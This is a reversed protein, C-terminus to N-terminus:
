KLRTYLLTKYLKEQPVYGQGELHKDIESSKGDEFAEVTIIAPHYRDLDLGKLVELDHGECDVNLYGIQPIPWPAQALISNLTRSTIVRTEVPTEGLVSKGNSDLDAQTRIRDTLGGGYYLGQVQQESSSVAAAVNYDLPRLKRFLAIKKDDMDVNVGRWNSKHLLLTNSCHIPHFCGVDVYIQSRVQVKKLWREVAMDEGFQSFYIQAFRVEERTLHANVGNRLRALSWNTFGALIQGGVKKM